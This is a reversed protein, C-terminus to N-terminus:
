NTVRQSAQSPACCPDQPSPAHGARPFSPPGQGKGRPWTARHLSRLQLSDELMGEGLYSPTWNKGPWGVGTEM